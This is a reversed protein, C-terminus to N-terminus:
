FCVSSAKCHQVGCAGSQSANPCVNGRCWWNQRQAPDRMEQYQGDNPPLQNRGPRRVTERVMMWRSEVFEMLIRYSYRTYPCLKQDPVSEFYLEAALVMLTTSFSFHKEPEPKVTHYDAYVETAGPAMALDLLDSEESEGTEPNLKRLKKCFDGWGAAKRLYIFISISQSLNTDISISLAKKSGFRTQTGNENRAMMCVYMCVYMSVYVCLYICVYISVCMCVYVYMCQYMSVYMSVYICLYMSVYICLYMSVYICVYM